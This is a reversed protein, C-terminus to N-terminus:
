DAHNLASGNGDSDDFSSDDFGLDGLDLDSGDLGVLNLDNPDLRITRAPRAPIQAKHRSATKRVKGAGADACVKVSCAGESDSTATSGPPVDEAFMVTPVTLPKLLVTSRVQWTAGTCACVM